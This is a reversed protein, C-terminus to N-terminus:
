KAWAFKTKLEGSFKDHPIKKEHQLRGLVIGPSIGQSFAFQRISEVDTLDAKDLFNSLEKPPLLLDEAFRNAEDEKQNDMKDIGDVFVNKKGHLTIHGAEHFFTFWVQDNTKYILSLQIMAKEPTLWRTAGCVNLKPLERTFVVAVGAESCLSQMEPYFEEAKKMTLARIAQLAELFKKLNFPRCKVEHAMLQGKRLWATLSNFNIEGQYAKRYTVKVNRYIRGWHMRHNLGFFALLSEVREIDTNGIPLWNYDVMTSIPFKRLWSVQSKFRNEASKRALFERYNKERNNWFSAPTKLVLELQLATEPTIPAKGKIIENITKVSKGIRVALDVQTMELADLTELLTEGPPSVHNPKYINMM